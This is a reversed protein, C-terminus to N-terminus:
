GEKMCPAFRILEEDVMGQEHLNAAREAEM